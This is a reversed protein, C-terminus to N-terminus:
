FLPFRSLIETEKECMKANPAPANALEEKAAKMGEIFKPNDHM